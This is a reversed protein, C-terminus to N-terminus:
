RVGGTPQGWPPLARLEDYLQQFEAQSMQESPETAVGTGTDQNSTM